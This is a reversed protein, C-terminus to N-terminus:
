NKLYMINVIKYKFKVNKFEIKGKLNNNKKGNKQTEIVDIESKTDIIKLFPIFNQCIQNINYFYFKIKIKWKRYKIILPLLTHLLSIMKM